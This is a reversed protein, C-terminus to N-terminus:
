LIVGGKLLTEIESLEADTADVNELHISDVETYGTLEALTSTIFAPYGMFENQKAPLAQRTHIM